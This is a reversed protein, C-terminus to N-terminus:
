GSDRGEPAGCVALSQTDEALCAHLADTVVTGQIIFLYSYTSHVYLIHVCMYTTQISM